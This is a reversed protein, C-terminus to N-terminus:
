WEGNAVGRSRRLDDVVHAAGGNVDLVAALPIVGEAVVHDEARTTGAADVRGDSGPASRLARPALQESQRLM